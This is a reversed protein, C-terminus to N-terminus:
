VLVIGSVDILEFSGLTTSHSVSSFSPEEKNQKSSLPKGLATDLNEIAQTIHQDIEKLLTGHAASRAFKTVKSFNELIAWGLNDAQKPPPTPILNPTPTVPVPPKPSTSTSTSNPVPVQTPIVPKEFSSRLLLSPDESYDSLYFISPDESSRNVNVHQKLSTFFERVGGSYFYYPTLAIGSQTVILIHPIGISPIYRKISRIEKLSVQLAYLDTPSPVKNEGTQLMYYPTWALFVEHNPFYKEVIYLYGPIGEKSSPFIYVNEKCFHVKLKQPPAQDTKVEQTQQNEM